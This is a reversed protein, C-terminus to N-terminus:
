RIRPFYLGFHDCFDDYFWGKEDVPIKQWAETWADAEAKNEIMHNVVLNVQDYCRARCVMWLATEYDYDSEWKARDAVNLEKDRYDKYKNPDVNKLLIEPHKELYSWKTEPTYEPVIPSGDLNLDYTKKPRADTESNRLQTAICLISVAVVVLSGIIKEPKDKM